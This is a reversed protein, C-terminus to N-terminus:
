NSLFPKMRRRGKLPPRAERSALPRSSEEILRVLLPTQKAKAAYKLPRM